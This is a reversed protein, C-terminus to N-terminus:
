SLIITGAVVGLVGVLWTGIVPKYLGHRKLALFFYGPITLSLACQVVSTRFILAAGIIQALSAVVMGIALSATGVSQM